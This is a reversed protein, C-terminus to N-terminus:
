PILLHIFIRLQRMQPVAHFGMRVAITPSITGQARASNIIQAGRAKMETLMHIDKRELSFISEVVRRFNNSSSILRHDLLLFVFVRVSLSCWFRFQM